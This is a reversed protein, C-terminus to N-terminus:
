VPVTAPVAKAQVFLLVLIPRAAAPMPFIAGKVASFPELAGVTAFMVTVGDAFPQVPVAFLKIMVTM